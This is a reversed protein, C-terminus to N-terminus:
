DYSTGSGLKVTKRAKLIQTPHIIIDGDPLQHMDPAMIGVDHAPYHFTHITEHYVVRELFEDKAVVCPSMLQSRCPWDNDARDRITELYIFSYPEEKNNVTRGYLGGEGPADHDLNGPGEYALVFHQVWFINTSVL